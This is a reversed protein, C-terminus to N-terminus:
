VTVILDHSMAPQLGNVGGVLNAGDMYWIDVAGTATNQWLIDDALMDNDFDTAGRMVWSLTDVMQIQTSHMAETGDMHWIFNMGTISNRWLLDDQQLNSDYSGVGGIYWGDGEPKQNISANGTVQGNDLFWVTVQHDVPNYWVLDDQYTDGDFDGVGQLHMDASPADLIFGGGVPQTTGNVQNTFWISSQRSNHNNWILDDEVGDNDFDGVGEIQWNPDAPDLIIPSSDLLSGQQLFWVSNEGTIPNRWVLDAFCDQNFNTHTTCGSVFVDATGNTDAAVLNTADSTFAFIKGDASIAAKRSDGNSASGTYSQSLLSTTATLTDYFFIDNIGNTDEEVLNSALSSFVIYRGDASIDPAVSGANAESGNLGVSVRTTIGNVVDRLFIDSVGNTDDDVLNNALSSFVVFRGDASMHAPDYSSLGNGSIGSTSQSILTTTNTHTDRIFVDEITDTDNPALNSSMSTFAVYRGDASVTPDDALSNGQEGNANESIRLTEGTTLNHLFVDRENNTDPQTVLNTAASTFVVFNGDASIKVENSIGNSKNGNSDVSVLRIEGTQTDYVYIDRTTDTDNAVLNTADSSFVIYRGDGSIGPFVSDGNAQNGASSISVRTTTGQLRDRLFIDSANNTDGLVLTDATSAFVVFRGDASLSPFISPNNGALDDSSVSARTFLANVM